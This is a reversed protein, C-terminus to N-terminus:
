TQGGVTVGGTDSSPSEGDTTIRLDGAESVWLFQSGLKLCASGSTINTNLIVDVANTPPKSSLTM